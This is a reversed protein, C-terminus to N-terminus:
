ISMNGGMISFIILKSIPTVTIHLIDCMNRFQIEKHFLIDSNIENYIPISSFQLKHKCFKTNNCLM